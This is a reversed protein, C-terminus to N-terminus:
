WNNDRMQRINAENELQRTLSPSQGMEELLDDRIDHNRKEDNLVKTFSHCVSSTYYAFPNDSKHENFKLSMHVLHLLAQGKMENIYTYGRWNSRQSYKNVLMMFGEALRDTIKGHTISFEGNKCHSRGVESLKGNNAIVYHVFPTFNLKYKTDGVTKPNKKRGETDDPIHDYNLVRFVLEGKKIDEPKVKPLNKGKNLANIKAAKNAKALKINAETLCQKKLYELKNKVGKNYIALEFSEPALILDYNEYKKDKYESYSNKSKHIEQLLEKNNLYNVPKNTTGDM